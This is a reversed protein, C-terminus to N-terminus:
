KNDRRVSNWRDVIQLVVLVWFAGAVLTFVFAMKPSHCPCSWLHWSYLTQMIAFLLDILIM